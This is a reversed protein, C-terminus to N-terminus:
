AFIVVFATKQRGFISIEEKERNIIGNFQIDKLKPGAFCAMEFVKSKSDPVSM